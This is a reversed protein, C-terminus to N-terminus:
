KEKRVQNTRYWHFLYQQAIGSHIGFKEKAFSYLQMDKGTFGYLDEMVRKIWVDCPFADSYGLSFLLVCDAVKPGVGKLTTLRKKAEEYGVTKLEELSFGEAIKKATDTIYDARYGAGCEVLQLGSGKSLATPTPFKHYIKGEFTFEEGFMVCMKEIIGRIRKINNNASVIFSILAEFPQQNLLRLGKAYECGKQLGIDDCHSFLNAYDRALDLYNYWIEEFDKQTCPYLVVANEEETVRLYRGFAVGEYGNKTKTFRFAQGNDFIHETDFNKIDRLYAKNEKYEVNM